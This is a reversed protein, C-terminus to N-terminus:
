IYWMSPSPVQDRASKLRPSPSPSLSPSPSPSPSPSLERRIARPESSTVAHHLESPTLM